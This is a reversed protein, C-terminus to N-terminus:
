VIVACGVGCVCRLRGSVQREEEVTDVADFTSKNILYKNVDCESRSM